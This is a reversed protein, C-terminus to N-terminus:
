IFLTIWINEFCWSYGFDLHKLLSQRYISRRNSALINGCISYWGNLTTRSVFHISRNVSVPVHFQQHKRM